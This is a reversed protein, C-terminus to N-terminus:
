EGGEVGGFGADVGFVASAAGFGGPYSLVAVDFERVVACSEEDYEQGVCEDKVGISGHILEGAHVAGFGFSAPYM